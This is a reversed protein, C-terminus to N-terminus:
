YTQETYIFSSCVRSVAQELRLNDRDTWGMLCPFIPLLFPIIQTYTPPLHLLIVCRSTWLCWLCEPVWLCFCMLPPLLFYTGLSLLFGSLRSREAQLSSCFVFCGKQEAVDSTSQQWYVSSSDWRWKLHEASRRFRMWWKMTTSHKESTFCRPTECDQWTLIKDSCTNPAQISKKKKCFNVSFITSLWPVDTVVHNRCIM